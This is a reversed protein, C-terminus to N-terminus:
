LKETVIPSPLKSNGFATGQNGSVMNECTAIIFHVEVDQCVAYPQGFAKKSMFFNRYITRSCSNKDANLFAIGEFCFLDSCKPSRDKPKLKAISAAAGLTSASGGMDFKMLEIM